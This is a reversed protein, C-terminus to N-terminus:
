DTDVVEKQKERNELTKEREQLTPFINGSHKAYYTIHNIECVPEDCDKSKHAESFYRACLLCGVIKRSMPDILLGEHKEPNRLAMRECIFCITMYMTSHSVFFILAATTLAIRM